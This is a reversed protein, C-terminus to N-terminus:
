AAYALVLMITGQQLPRIWPSLKAPHTAIRARAISVHSDSPNKTPLFNNRGNADV